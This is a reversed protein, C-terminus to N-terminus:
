RDSTSKGDEKISLHAWVGTAIILFFALIYKESEVAGAVLLLSIFSMAGLIYSLVTKM